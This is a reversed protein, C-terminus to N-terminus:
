REEDRCNPREKLLFLCCKSNLVTKKEEDKGKMTGAGSWRKVKDESGIRHSPLYLQKSKSSGKKGDSGDAHITKSQCIARPSPQQMADSLAFATVATVHVDGTCYLLEFQNANGCFVRIPEM